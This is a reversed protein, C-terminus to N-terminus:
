NFQIYCKFHSTTPIVWVFLANFLIIYILLLERGAFTIIFTWANHCPTIIFFIHPFYFYCWWIQKLTSCLSIHWVGFLFFKWRRSLLFLAKCGNHSSSYTVKEPDFAILSRLLPVFWSGGTQNLPSGYNLWFRIM